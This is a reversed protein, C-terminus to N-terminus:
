ICGWGDINKNWVKYCFNKVGLDLVVSIDNIYLIFIYYLYIKIWINFFKVKYNKIVIFVLVILMLYICM